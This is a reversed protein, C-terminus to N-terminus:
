KSSDPLAPTQAGDWIYQFQSMWYAYWRDSKERTLEINMRKDTSENHYGHFEVIIQGYKQDPDVAVLSFGPGYDLLRYEVTGPTPWSKMLQLQHITRTLEDTMHQMQFDVGKDLQRILIDVGEANHPDQIVIRVEGGPQALIERRIAEGNDSRLINAASPAYIWLKKAGRIRESLPGFAARDNLYDDLAVIQPGNSSLNLVLLSLAALMVATILKDPVDIPLATLIVLIAAVLSVVYVDLNRRAKFDERVRRMFRQFSNM